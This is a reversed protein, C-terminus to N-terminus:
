RYNKNVKQIGNLMKTKWGKGNRKTLYVDTIKEYEESAKTLEPMITCGLNKVKIGYIKLISDTKAKVIEQNKNKPPLPLGFGFTKVDDNKIDNEADKRFQTLIEDAFKENEIENKSKFPFFLVIFLLCILIAISIIILVKKKM